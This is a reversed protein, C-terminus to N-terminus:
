NRKNRRISDALLSPCLLLTLPSALPQGLQQARQQALSKLRKLDAPKVGAGRVVEKLLKGHNHLSKPAARVKSRQGLVVLLIIVAAAGLIVALVKGGDAGQNVNQEISRFVDEQTPTARAAPPMCTLSAVTVAIAVLRRIAATRPAPPTTPNM